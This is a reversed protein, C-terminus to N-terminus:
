EKVTRALALVHVARAGAHKLLAACAEVTAGTTVVDDVLLITKDAVAATARANLAFAHRVNKLRMARDLRMQPRTARTRKLIDLRCPLGTEEALRYALLAAQNYRRKLLRHWHLPVPVILDCHALQATASAKMMAGYRALGAWQDHFKLASVLPASIRDYVMVARVTDFAPPTALCEPCLAGEGLDAPFPIGCCACVPPAILRLQGFCAPCFNGDVEVAAECSPCRPPFAVDLARSGLHTLAHKLSAM